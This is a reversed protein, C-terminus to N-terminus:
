GSFYEIAKRVSALGKSKHFFLWENVSMNMRSSFKEMYKNVTEKNEIFGVMEFGVPIEGLIFQTDGFQYSEREQAVSIDIVSGNFALWVHFNLLEPNNFLAQVFPNNSRYANYGQVLKLDDTDFVDDQELLGYLLVSLYICLGGEENWHTLEKRITSSTVFKAQNDFLEEFLLSMYYFYIRFLEEKETSPASTTQFQVADEKDYIYSQIWKASVVQQVHKIKDEYSLPSTRVSFEDM